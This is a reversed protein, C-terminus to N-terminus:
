RVTVINSHVSTIGYPLVTSQSTISTLYVYLMYYGPQLNQPVVFSGVDGMFQPLDIISGFQLDDEPDIYSNPRGEPFSLIPVLSANMAGYGIEDYTTASINFSQGALLTPYPESLGYEPNKIAIQDQAINFKNPDSMNSNLLLFQMGLGSVKDYSDTINVYSGPVLTDTGLRQMQSQDADFIPSSIGEMYADLADSSSDVRFETSGWNEHWYSIAKLRPYKGSEVTRFADSIWSSKTGETHSDGTAFELIALPKDKSLSSLSPYIDDLTESFTLGKEGNEPGYISVGIWDVFADGPYYNKFTNWTEAPESYANVHFVWTINDVNEDEFLGVIHRYADRLREPGDPIDPDGYQNKVGGGNNIGSWPFWDGNAETGFEVMLSGNISKAAKAWRSLNSDFKGDIIDQLSYQPDSAISDFSTRPMLRIFPIIGLSQIDKVEKIPFEIDGYWNNSFYAWVIKKEVLNEFALIKEKSVQDETGGFDAFAGHYVGHLPPVVKVSLLKTNDFNYILVFSVIVALLSITIVVFL